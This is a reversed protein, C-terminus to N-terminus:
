VLVCELDEKYTIKKNQKEGDCFFVAGAFDSYIESDDTYEKNTLAVCNHAKLLKKFNFGQPTQAAFINSRELHSVIQKNEDVEKPTDIIACCPVIADYGKKKLHSCIKEILDTSLWPRAGDHVLVFDAECINLLANYVSKQRTQGGLVFKINIDKFKGDIRKDSSIIEKANQLDTEPVTIILDSFIQTTLFKFVVESLVTIGNTTNPLPLYEKKIGNTSNNMRSSNGAATIIAVFKTKTM